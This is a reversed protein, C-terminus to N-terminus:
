TNKNKPTTLYTSLLSFARLHTSIHCSVVPLWGASMEVVKLFGDSKKKKFSYCM